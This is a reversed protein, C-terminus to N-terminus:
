FGEQGLDNFPPIIHSFTLNNVTLIRHYFNFFPKDVGIMIQSSEHPLKLDKGLLLNQVKSNFFNASSLKLHLSFPPFNEFLTFVVEKKEWLM